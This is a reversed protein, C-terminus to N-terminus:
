KLIIKGDSDMVSSDKLKWILSSIDASEAEIRKLFNNDNDFQYITLDILNQGDLKSSRIINYQGLNKEKIWIGNINVTALYEWEDIEYNTKISEYKKVLLSTIPNIATVFFIGLMISLISPVIIVSFNSMGSVRMAIIEDTKKIKLFFWIGSLLIVFPFMNYFLSPVFLLSLIMPINIGVDFDKFFNIEEFLNIIFGLCFFVVSMSIVIKLFERTLYNNIIFSRIM